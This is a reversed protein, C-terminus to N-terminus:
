QILLGAKGLWVHMSRPRGHCARVQATGACRFPYRDIGIDRSRSADELLQARPDHRQFERRPRDEAPGLQGLCEADALRQDALRDLPQFLDVQHHGVPLGAGLHRADIALAQPVLAEQAAAQFALNHVKQAPRRVRVQGLRQAIEIDLLRQDVLRVLDLQEAFEVLTEVLRQEDGGPVLGHVPQNDLLGALHGAQARQVQRAAVLQM